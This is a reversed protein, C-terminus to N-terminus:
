ELITKIGINVRGYRRNQFLLNKKKKKSSASPLSVSPLAPKGLCIRCFDNIGGENRLPFVAVKSGSHYYYILPKTHFKQFIAVM